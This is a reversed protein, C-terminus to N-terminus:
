KKPINPFAAHMDYMSLYITIMSYDDDRMKRADMSIVVSEARVVRM